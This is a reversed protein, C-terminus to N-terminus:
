NEVVVSNKGSNRSHIEVGEHLLLFINVNGQSIDYFCQMPITFYLTFHPSFLPMRGQLSVSLLIAKLMDGGGREM